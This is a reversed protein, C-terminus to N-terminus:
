FELRCGVQINRSNNASRISGATPLDVNNEPMGLNGHNTLNFAELRIQLARSETFRIRRSLAANVVVTGPGDLINRGSNGFRYAGAPVVEFAGVDYWKEASPDALTGTRLRDPRTAEGIAYNSNATRPTFPQGSYLTWVGSLQWDRALWHNPLHPTWIFSGVWAHRVDFDSRGRESKLNNSDQAQPFNYQLVGGTNSSEDISKAWTYSGRVYLQNSFRRRVTVQGSHYISSAGDNTISISGFFPYPRVNSTAQERGPQNIDYVRQLHTGKSGAYTLQFVTGQLLEREYTLNWNQLNQNQPEASSMGATSNVGTFGRRDAPFPNSLTLRTPDSTVRSFTETVAYPYVQSFGDFRYMSGSGFFIGYGRNRYQVGEM